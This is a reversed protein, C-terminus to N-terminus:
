AGANLCRWKLRERVEFIVPLICLAAYASEAAAQPRFYIYPYFECISGNRVAGIVFLATSIVSISLVFAGATTHRYRPFVTRGDLTGGRARISEATRVSLELSSVALSFFVRLASRVRQMFTEASLLGAAKQASGIEYYRIKFEPVYRLTLTFVSAAGSFRGRFLSAIKEATMIESFLRFWILAAVLTAAMDAGYVAAELTYAKGNVYFLPTDGRHVFLPNTVSLVAILSLYFGADKILSRSIGSLALTIAGFILSFIHVLPDSSFMAIGVVAAFYAGCVSPALRNMMRM